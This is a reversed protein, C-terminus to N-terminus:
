ATPEFEGRVAGEPFSATDIEVYYGASSLKIGRIIAEDIGEVCGSHPAQPGSALTVLAAGFDGQNGNGLKVATAQDVFQTTYSYCITGPQEGMTVKIEGTGDQDGPGPVVEDGSLRAFLTVKGTDGGSNGGGCAGLACLAAALALVIM